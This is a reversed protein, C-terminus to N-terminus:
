FSDTAVGGIDRLASVRMLASSGCWFSAENRDRAPMLVRFFLSQEHRGHTRHQVSDLNRFHQPSQVLAVRPDRFYGSLVRLIDRSPVHDADLILVFESTILPLANNVNGAKAHENSARAVYRVGLAECYERVEKRRGDDLVWV